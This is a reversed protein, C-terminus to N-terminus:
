GGGGGGDTITLKGAGVEVDIVLLAPPDGADAEVSLNTGRREDGFEDISGVGVHGALHTPVRRPLVVTVDGTGAGIDVSRPEALELESLDLVLAGVSVGYHDSLESGTSPRLVTSEFVTDDPASGRRVVVTGINTRLDLRYRARGGGLTTDLQVGLGSRRLGDVDIEGVGVRGTVEVAADAPVLVVLEGVGVRATLDVAGSAPLDRLDITLSGAATRYVSPVEAVTAPRIRIQGVTGTFAFEGVPSLLLFPLLLLGPLVLWRARGFWAGVVLGLGIVITVAGLYHRPAPDFSALLYDFFWIAGATLLAVGLTLRGLVSRPQPPRPDPSVPDHGDTPPTTDTGTTGDARVPRATSVPPSTTDEGTVGGLRGQYLLVGVVVLIVALLLDGRFFGANGAVIFVAVLILGIGIWAGAGHARDLLQAALSDTQDERPMLLWGVLYLAVGLGGVFALVVFALRVLWVPLDLRRAVGAAVGAFMRDLPRRWRRDMRHDSGLGDVRTSESTM